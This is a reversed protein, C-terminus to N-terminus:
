GDRRGPLARLPAPHDGGEGGHRRALEARLAASDREARSADPRIGATDILRRYYRCCLSRICGGKRVADTHGERDAEAEFLPMHRLCFLVKFERTGPQPGLINALREAKKLDDDVQVEREPCTEWWELQDSV